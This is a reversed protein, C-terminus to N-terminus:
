VLAFVDVIWAKISRITPDDKHHPQVLLWVERRTGVETLTVGKKDELGACLFDPLLAAGEGAELFRRTVALNSTKFRVPIGLRSVEPAKMESTSALRDPYTCLADPDANSVLRFHLDTLKRVLFNGQGPRGLRIAIDTEWRNLDANDDTTELTLVVEPCAAFLESLRPALFHEAISPTTSLRVNRWRTEPSRATQVIKEAARDMERAQELVQQGQETPHRIGDASEFLRCGLDGEIRALRRSITTEDMELARGAKAFTQERHIAIVVRLDDWNM